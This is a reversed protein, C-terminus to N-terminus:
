LQTIITVCCHFRTSMPREGSIYFKPNRMRRSHWFRKGRWRNLLFGSTLSLPMCWPMHTVYTGTMCWPLHTVCTGHHMDPDSVRPAQAFTGPMGPAHAVRFKVYRTLPGHYGMFVREVVSDRKTRILKAVCLNLSAFCHHKRQQLGSYDTSSINWHCNLKIPTRTKKDVKKTM